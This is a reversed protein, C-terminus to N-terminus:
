PNILFNDTSQNLIEARREIEKFHTFLETQFYLKSFNPGQFFVSQFNKNKLYKKQFFTKQFNENSFYSRVASQSWM